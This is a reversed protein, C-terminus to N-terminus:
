RKYVLHINGPKRADFFQNFGGDKFDWIRGFNAFTWAIINMQHAFVVAVVRVLLLPFEVVPPPLRPYLLPVSVLDSTWKM